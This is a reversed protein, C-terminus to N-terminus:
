SKSDPPGRHLGVLDRGGLVCLSGVSRVTGAIRDDRPENAVNTGSWRYSEIPFSAAHPRVDEDGIYVAPDSELSGNPGLRQRKRPVRPVAIPNFRVLALREPARRRSPLGIAVTLVVGARPIPSHMSVTIPARVSRRHDRTPARSVASPSM